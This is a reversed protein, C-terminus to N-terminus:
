REGVRSRLGELEELLELALAAGPLNVGLDEQLRITVQIKKISVASFTWSQPSNGKPSLIGENIMDHVIEDKVQCVKCLENLNFTITDDLVTCTQKATM